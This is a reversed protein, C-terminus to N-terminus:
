LLKNYLEYAQTTKQSPSKNNNTENNNNDNGNDKTLVIGHKVQNNRLIIGIDRLSMRLEKAIDRTNRGQNYLDLVKKERENHYDNNNGTLM